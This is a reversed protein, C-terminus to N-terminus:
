ASLLTLVLNEHSIDRFIHLFDDLFFFDSPFLSPLHASVSLCVATHVWVICNSSYLPSDVVTLVSTLGTTEHFTLFM